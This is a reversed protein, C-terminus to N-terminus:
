HIGILYYGSLVIMIGVLFFALIGKWTTDVKRFILRIISLLIFAIGDVMLVLLIEYGKGYDFTESFLGLPLIISVILFMWYTIKYVKEM